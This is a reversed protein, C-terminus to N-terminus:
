DWLPLLILWSQEKLKKKRYLWSIIICAATIVILFEVLFVVPKSQPFGPKLSIALALGSLFVTLILNVVISSIGKIEWVAYELVFFMVAGMGHTM